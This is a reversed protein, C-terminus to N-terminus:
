IGRCRRPPINPAPRRVGCEDPGFTEGSGGCHRPESVQPRSARRPRSVRASCLSARRPRSVRASCLSARRPRSVRVARLEEDRQRVQEPTLESAIQWRRGDRTWVAAVRVIKQDAYPRFRVPRYGSKKLLEATGDFEDLPMTQCFAFREAVLGGATEIQSKATADVEAWSERLPPDNWEYPAKKDIEAQSLPFTEAQRTQAAKFFASYAKADSDMVLNAILVPDDRAYAALIDTALSRATESRGKDRFISALPGTLSGRVPELAEIWPRLYFASVQVMAEAVKAGLEGWRPNRADFLALASAAPLLGADGPRSSELVSWLKETLSSQHRARQARAVPELLDRIVPLEDPSAGLLRRLLFDAQTADLDLLALSARLHDRTSEDSERLIRRLRFDAWRHYRSLQKIIPEVETTGAAQLKEVLSAARLVAYGEISGWTLLAILATAGLVRLGHVRGARRMMRRQANTWERKTTLARISAWELLSPLHRNEPRANWLEAREALRLEARGRRTERQKRTLWNRLSPV